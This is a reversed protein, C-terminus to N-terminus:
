EEPSRGLLPRHTSVLRLAPYVAIAGRESEARLVLPSPLLTALAELVVALGMCPAAIPKGAHFFDRITAGVHPDLSGPRHRDLYGRVAVTGRVFLASFNGRPLPDAPSEIGHLGARPLCDRIARLDDDEAADRPQLILVAAMPDPGTLAPGDAPPPASVTNARGLRGGSLTRDPPPESM